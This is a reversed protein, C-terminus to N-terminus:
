KRGRKKPFYTRPQGTSQPAPCIGGPCGSRVPAAQVPAPSGAKVGLAKEMRSLSADLAIYEDDTLGNAVADKREAATLVRKAKPADAVIPVMATVRPSDTKVGTVTGLLCGDDGFVGGGSDGNEIPKECDDLPVLGDGIKINVAGIYTGQAFSKTKLGYVTVREGYAPVRVPVPKLNAGPVIAVAFDKGAVPSWNARKWEGDVLVEVRSGAPMQHTLHSVSHLKDPGVAVGCGEFTISGQQGVVGYAFRVPYVAKVWEPDIKPPDAPAPVEIPTIPPIVIPDEPMGALEVEIPKEGSVEVPIAVIPLDVSEAAVAIPAPSRPFLSLLALLIAVAVTKFM